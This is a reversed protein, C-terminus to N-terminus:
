CVLHNVAAHLYASSCMDVALVLQQQMVPAQEVNEESLLSRVQLAVAGTYPHLADDADEEGAATFDMLEMSQILAYLYTAMDHIVMQIVRHEQEDAASPTVSKRTGHLTILRQFLQRAERLVDPVEEVAKMLDETEQAAISVEMAGFVNASEVNGSNGGDNRAPNGTKALSSVCDKIRLFTLFVDSLDTWNNGYVSLMKAATMTQEQQLTVSELLLLLKHATDGAALLANPAIKTVIVQTALSYSGAAILSNVQKAYQLQYGQECAEATHLLPAPINLSTTLFSFLEANATCGGAFRMLIDSVLCYRASVSPLQLAVFLAWQWHGESLLQFVFHRRVIDAHEAYVSSIGASELMVLLLYSARYDLADRSYGSPHLATVVSRRVEYAIMLDDSDMNSAAAAAASSSAASPFLLELLSYLGTTATPYSVDAGLPDADQEFASVPADALGDQMVIRFNELANSLTSINDIFSDATSCYWFLMGLGRLWGLGTLSSVPAAGSDVVDGGLDADVDADADTGAGAGTGQQETIVTGALLRYLKLLEPAITYDAESVRWLELQSRVLHPVCSDGDLQSLLLALRFMGANEALRVADQVRKCSLLEFLRNYTYPHQGFHGDDAADTASV